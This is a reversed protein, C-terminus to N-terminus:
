DFKGNVNNLKDLQVDLEAKATDSVPKGGVTFSATGLDGNPIFSRVEAVSLDHNM